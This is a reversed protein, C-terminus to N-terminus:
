AAPPDKLVKWLPPHDLVASLRLRVRLTANAKVAQLLAFNYIKGSPGAEIAEAVTSFATGLLEGGTALVEFEIRVSADVSGKLSVHFTQEFEPHEVSFVGELDYAANTHFTQSGVKVKVYPRKQPPFNHGEDVEITLLLLSCNKPRLTDARQTMIAHQIYRLDSSITLWKAALTVTPTANEPSGTLEIEQTGKRILESILITASGLFDDNSGLDYDWAEVRLQQSASESTLVFDFLQNDWVPNANDNVHDTNFVVSGHTLTLYVDPQECIGVAQKLLNRDTAPFGSGKLAAVRLIGVPQASFHFYDTDLIGKYAVRNPLVAAKALVDNVVNHIGRRIFDSRAGFAGLGTLKYDVEPRNIFAIQFAGILPIRDLFPRMVIEVRGNLKVENVGCAMEAFTMQIDPHGHYSIDAEIVAATDNDNYKRQHVHVSNIIVSDEGIDIKTFRPRLIAPFFATMAPQVYELLVFQAFNAVYPWIEHILHSLWVASEASECQLLHKRAANEPINISTNPVAFSVGNQADKSSTESNPM